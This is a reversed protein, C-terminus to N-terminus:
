GSKVLERLMESLPAYVKEARYLQGARELGALGMRISKPRNKILDRIASSLERPNLPEVLIGTVEDQILQPLAGVKAGIVPLAAAMGEIAAIGFGERRSPVALIDSAALKERIETPSVAGSLRIKDDLKNEKIQRALATALSGEGVIECIWDVDKDIMTLAEILLDFGKEHSLRGIAIIRLPRHLGSSPSFLDIEVGHGICVVKEERAGALLARQQMDPSHVVIRDATRCLRSAMRRLIGRPEALDSGHFGVVFPKKLKQAVSAAALGAATWHAYIVDFDPAMEMVSKKMSALFWPVVTWLWLDEKLNAPIGGGYALRELIRPAYHFRRVSLPGLRDGGVSGKHAPALVTVNMGSLALMRAQTEIFTGSWHEEYLPFSTTVFLVNLKKGNSYDM